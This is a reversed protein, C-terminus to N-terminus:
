VESHKAFLFGNQFYEEIFHKFHIILNLFHSFLYPILRQDFLKYFNIITWFARIEFYSIIDM